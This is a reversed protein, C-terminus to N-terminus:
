LDKSSVCSSARCGNFTSSRTISRVQQTSFIYIGSGTADHEGSILSM